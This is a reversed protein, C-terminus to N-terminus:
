RRFVDEVTLDADVSGPMEEGLQLPQALLAQPTNGSACDVREGTVGAGKEWVMRAVIRGTAGRM